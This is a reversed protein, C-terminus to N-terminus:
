TTRWRRRRPDPASSTGVASGASAARNLLLESQDFSGDLSILDGVIEVATMPKVAAELGDVRAVSAARRVRQRGARSWSRASIRGDRGAMGEGGGLPTIARRRVGTATCCQSFWRGCLVSAPPSVSRLQPTTRVPRAGGPAAGPRWSERLVAVRREDEAKFRDVQEIV